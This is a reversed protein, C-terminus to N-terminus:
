NRLSPAKAQILPIAALAIVMLAILTQFLLRYSGSIDFTWGALFPAAAGAAGTVLAMSGMARAYLEIPYLQGILASWFPTLGGGAVAVLCTAIILHQYSDAAIIVMTAVLCFLLMASFLWRIEFVDCLRGIVPSAFLGILAFISILVAARERTVGLDTAFLSLNALVTTLVAVLATMGLASLWFNRGSLVESFSHNPIPSAPSPTTDASKRQRAGDIALGVDSPRDIITWYALAPVLVAMSLGVLRLVLRWDYAELMVALLPPIFFGFLQTGLGALGIALGRDRQFWRSLLVSSALMALAAVGVSVVLAYVAVFAWASPSLSILAFGIGILWAACIVTRRISIRDMLNGIFPSALGIVINQGTVGLMVLARNASFTREVEGAYLSYSYITVSTTLGQIVLCVLVLWWGYFVTRGCAAPGVAPPENM